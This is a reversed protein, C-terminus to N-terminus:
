KLAAAVAGGHAAAQEEVFRGLHEKFTRVDFRSAHRAIAERDWETGRIRELADAVAGV